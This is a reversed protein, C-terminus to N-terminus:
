RMLSSLLKIPSFIIRLLRAWGTVRPPANKDHRRLESKWDLLGTRYYLKIREEDTM